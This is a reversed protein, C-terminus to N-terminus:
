KRHLLQLHLSLCQCHFEEGKARNKIWYIYIFLYVCLLFYLYMCVYLLCKSFANPAHYSVLTQRCLKGGVM